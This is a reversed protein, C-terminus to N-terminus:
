FHHTNSKYKRYYNLRKNLSSAIHINSIDSTVAHPSISVSVNNKIFNLFENISNFVEVENRIDGLDLALGGKSAQSNSLPINIRYEREPAFVKSKVMNSWYVSSFNYGSDKYLRFAEKNKNNSYTIPGYSAENIGIDALKQSVLNKFSVFDKFMVVKKPFRKDSLLTRRMDNIFRNRQQSSILDHLSSVQTCCFYGRPIQIEAHSFSNKPLIHNDIQVQIDKSKFDEIGESNDGIWKNKENKEIGQYRKNSGFYIEGKNLFEPFYNSDIFKIFM